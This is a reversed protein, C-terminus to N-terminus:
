RPAPIPIFRPCYPSALPIADGKQALQGTSPDISFLATVNNGHNTIIMWRGTPDIEFNRPTQGGCPTTGLLTLKFSAPDVGFQAISDHGRNSAYVYRGDHSVKIEAGSSTGKFDAPLTSIEQVPKLVGAQADWTLATIMSHMEHMLYVIKGNPHFVLHRPGSGPKVAAFPPDHPSLTGAKEDFAYVMVKDLGLDPVLAFRNGPDTVISHAYAQAQRAPDISTGKHQQFATRNGFSGDPQIAFVAVSGGEAKIANGTYHAVLAFRGTKDLSMFAPGEAGSPIQNLLTLRATKPDLAFASIAGMHAVGGFNPISNCAYVRSADASLVFYYCADSATVFRPPSLTAAATDLRAISFGAAPGTARTGFLVPLEDAFLPLSTTAILLAAVLTRFNLM